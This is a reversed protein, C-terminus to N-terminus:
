GYVWKVLTLSALLCILISVLDLLIGAKIMDKM